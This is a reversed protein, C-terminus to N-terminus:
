GVPCGKVGFTLYQIGYHWRFDSLSIVVTKNLLLLRLFYSEGERPSINYMRRVVQELVVSFDYEADGSSRMKYKACPVWKRRAKHWRVQKPFDTYSTHRASSFQQNSHFWAM